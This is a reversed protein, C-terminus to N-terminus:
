YQKAVAVGVADGGMCLRSCLELRAGRVGEEPAKYLTGLLDCCGDAIGQIYITDGDDLHLVIKTIRQDRDQCQTDPRRHFELPFAAFRALYAAMESSGMFRCVIFTM